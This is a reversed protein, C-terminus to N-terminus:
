PTHTLDIVEIDYVVSSKAPIKDQDGLLGHALHSPLIFKAKAGKSLLKIGEHIGSEIQDQDVVFRQPGLSDSSYCFTGDLLEIRYNVTARMGTQALTGIGPEIIMYRLGTGSREMKLGRRAIYRDIALDEEHALTKNIKILSEKLQRPDVQQPEPEPNRCNTYLALCAPLVLLIKIQSKLWLNM